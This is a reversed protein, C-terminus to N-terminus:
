LLVFAAIRAGLRTMKHGYIREMITVVQNRPHFLSFAKM